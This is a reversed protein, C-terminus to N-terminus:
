YQNNRVPITTEIVRYRYHREATTLTRTLTLASGLDSFMTLTSATAVVDKEPLATRLILAVRVARINKILKSAGASGDTLKDAAYASSSTADVWSDIVNSTSGTSDVGYVAHMEFVGEAQAQLAPSTLGLLDYSFLTNSDGVGVIQFSPPLSTGIGSTGGLDIGVGDGTFNIVSRTDVTAAYYNGGLPLSTTIGTTTATTAVQSVLCGAPGGSAEPQQDALLMLDGPAFETTNSMTLVTAKPVGSFLTPAQSGDNGSAMVVLVDSPKGSIAPTTGGSVIVVPALRYTTTSTSNEGFTAFPAPLAGTLPLLQTAGSTAFLKCGYTYSNGQVLGTGASRLWRDVQFMALSGTQELDSASGVTRRRGEFTSMVSLVAISMIMSILVAIMLEILTM